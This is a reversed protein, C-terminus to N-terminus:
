RQLLNKLQGKAIANDPFQRIFRNLTHKAKETQGTQLLSRVYFSHYNKQTKPFRKFLKEYVPIAKIFERKEDYLAILNQLVKENPKVISNAEELYHLAKTKNNNKLYYSSLALLTNSFAPNRKYIFEYYEIAKKTNGLRNYIDALNYPAELMRDDIEVTREYFPIAKKLQNTKHFFFALNLQFLPNNKDIDAAKVHADHAISFYKDKLKQDSSQSHYLNALELSSVALRNRYWPNNDDLKINKQYVDIAQKLLREKEKFSRRTSSASQYAKGLTTKYHAEWPAFETAKLLQRIALAYRKAALNNFGERYQREALFPKVAHWGLISVLIWILGILFYTRNLKM